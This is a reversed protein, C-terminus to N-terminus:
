HNSTQVEEDNDEEEKKPPMIFLAQPDGLVEMSDKAKFGTRDLVDKAAALKEKNGLDTPSDMIDKLSYAAKVSLSKIFLRTYTDIEEELPEFVESLSTSQSYGALRKAEYFDGRAEGYLAALFRQQKDTM